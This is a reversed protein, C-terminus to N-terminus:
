VLSIKKDLIFVVLTVKNSAYTVYDIIRRIHNIACYM